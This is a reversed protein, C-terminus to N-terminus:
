DSALTPNSRAFVRSEGADDELVTHGLGKAAAIEKAM